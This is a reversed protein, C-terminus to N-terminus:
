AFDTNSQVTSTGAGGTGNTTDTGANYVTGGGAGVTAVLLSGSTAITGASGGSVTITGSNATLSNYLVVCQGGGGGGGGAMRFSTGTGIVSGNVGNAGAVSIGSATTFNWAGGCEIILAGGGVGGRVLPATMTATWSTWRASGGGGGAGPVIYPYKAFVQSFARIADLTAVTGGSGTGTTVGAAGGGTKYASVSKGDTGANGANTGSGGGTTFTGEANLGLGGAAGMGSADIMPATSSTLTVNGTSKLIILTGNAHPNSFALKGTSTISISSYNKVFTAANACDLTTTGSTIALAGDAGSGGFKASSSAAWSPVSSAGMTLLTGQAGAAIRTLVGSSNRYYMDGTADSGLTMTVGAIVFGTGAGGSTLTGVTALASASTLSGLSTVTTLVVNVGEVAIVGASVRSITTDTAHGLEISGVGIATSTSAVLGAIPLGTANTLTGSSPTGLAGGNYLVTGGAGFAVSSSDTGTFTLTNSVTLVKGTAVNVGEYLFGWNAATTPTAVLATFIASTSAGLILIANAGSSQVTVLGSSQNVIQWQQGAVVSTTPLKITQTTSGTWYQQFKDGVVMTTIGAATATSLWGEIMNNINSNGSADRSMLTSATAASAVGTGTPLGTLVPTTLTKNTLGQATSVDVVTVGEVAILGASVRTITTDSAHGLEISGVGIATSTSAVLGAIPLGTANTLTGSSPTGLAGNFTVFAGASGVNVGLATAVGTGLGTIGGVAVSGASGTVSGTIANTVTIDTAWLKTLRSGTLGITQGTTQDTSILTGATPLTLSTTASVTFTTGFNGSITITSAANNAVGTGGLNAPVVSLPSRTFQSYTLPDTGVTTVSSTLLWSTLANVTGNVVPIAGTNNIDSPQNYDLARTLIPPLIATQIQTVYYIGNKSGSPAQTDNKVLLRQGVATFTFGDIVLATNNSGTFTAGIGSAGNNYTLGSTDGAATTAAQVAVAPNVGAIANNIATTVFATTAVNTTNDGASQTAFSLTIAPTTTPNSVSGSAGNATVVSITTVTGGGGGAVAAWTGDAKLFKSAAADGAAPAPVLGKLGGSGSDGTFANLMATAQTATLAEPVGTGATTRGIFSATAINAMRALTVSGAAISLDATTTPNTVTISGDASAISTVGTSGSGSGLMYKGNTITLGSLDVDDLEKLSITKSSSRGRFTDFNPRDKLDEYSIKGKLMSVMEDATHPKIQETLQPNPILPRILALLEEQTPRYPSPIPIQAILPKILSLLHEESPPEGDKVVPILPRILALIEDNSPKLPKPILPKILALLEADTPTHGEDGKDGKDGKKGKVHFMAEDEIDKPEPGGKGIKDAMEKLAEATKHTNLAIADLPVELSKVAETNQHTALLQHEADLNEGNEPLQAEETPDQM